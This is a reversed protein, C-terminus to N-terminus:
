QLRVNRRSLGEYYSTYDHTITKCSVRWYTLAGQEGRMPEPYSIEYPSIIHNILSGHGSGTWEVDFIIDGIAPRAEPKMFFIYSPQAVSGPEAHQLLQPQSIPAMASMGRCKHLEVKVSYGTGFCSPCRPNASQEKENWCRCHVGLIRRIYVIQIPHEEIFNVFDNVLM